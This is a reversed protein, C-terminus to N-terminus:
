IHKEALDAIKPLSRVHKSLCLCLGILIYSVGQIIFVLDVRYLLTGLAGGALAGIAAAVARLSTITTDVRSILNKPPLKQVIARYFIGIASGLGVYLIYILIARTYNDAINNVFLIRTVGAAIFAGVLIKWLELRAETMRCIYSGVLGGLLALGSLIIFGSATGLHYEAFRPLNVHTVDAFFSMFIAAIVLPLMLGKKVFSLGMKLESFYLKFTAKDSKEADETSEDSRLFVAFLLAIFMFATNFAYVLIFDAGGALSLYLVVAVGIGGIIGTINMLANAKILDEGKVIRPLFATHAPANFLTALCFVFISLFYLWVGPTFIINAALILATVCLYVFCTIQLARAKNWRDVLPGVIFSAVFPAGFMFGAIGTYMPNYFLAHVVWMMFIGFMGRGIGMFTSFMLFSRFIRNEHFLNQM